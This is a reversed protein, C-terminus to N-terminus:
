QKFKATARFDDKNHNNKYCYHCCMNSGKLNKSTKGVSTTVPATKKHYVPLSSPNPGKTRRIKEVNELRKFYSVSEEHSMEFIDIIANVM